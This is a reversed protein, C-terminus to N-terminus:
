SASTLHGQTFVIRPGRLAKNPNMTNTHNNLDDKCGFTEECPDCNFTQDPSSTLQQTYSSPSIPHSGQASPPGSSYKYRYRYKSHVFFFPRPNLTRRLHFSPRGRPRPPWSAWRSVDHLELCIGAICGDGGRLASLMCYLTERNM